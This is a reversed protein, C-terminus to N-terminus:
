SPDEEEDDDGPEEEQPLPQYVILQPSPLYYRLYVRHERVIAKWERFRKQVDAIKAYWVIRRRVGAGERESLRRELERHRVGAIHLAAALEATRQEQLALRNTREALRNTREGQEQLAAALRNTREAHGLYVRELEDIRRSAIEDNQCLGSIWEQLTLRRGSADRFAAAAARFGGGGGGSEEGGTSPVGKKKM